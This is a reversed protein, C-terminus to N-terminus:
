RIGQEALAAGFVAEAERTRAETAAVEGEYILRPEMRATGYELFGAYFKANHIVAAQYPALGALSAAVDSENPPAIPAVRPRAPEDPEPREPHEYLLTEPREAGLAVTHSARYEGTRVPSREAIGAFAETLLHAHADAHARGIADPLARLFEDLERLEDM